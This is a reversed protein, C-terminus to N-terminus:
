MMNVFTVPHSVEQMGVSDTCVFEGGPLQM